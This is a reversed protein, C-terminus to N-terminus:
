QAAGHRKAQELSIKSQKEQEERMSPSQMTPWGLTHLQVLEAMAKLWADDENLCPIYNFEKGGAAFFDHRAEMAIEEL